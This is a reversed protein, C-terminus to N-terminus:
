KRRAFVIISRDYQKQRLVECPITDWNIAHSREYELVFIGNETLNNEEFILPLFTDFQSWKFPPDAFVLDFPSPNKKLFPIVDKRITECPEEIGIRKLNGRLVKLSSHALDVFTVSAAGRSLAEMGLGGSGSFMDLTRADHTIDGLIQFIYEKIKATTPRISRDRSSQIQRGRYKGAIIRM